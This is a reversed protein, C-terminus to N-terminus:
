FLTAPEDTFLSRYKPLNFPKFTLSLFVCLDGIGSVFYTRTSPPCLPEFIKKNKYPRTQLGGQRNEDFAGKARTGFLTLSFDGSAAFGPRRLKRHGQRHSDTPITTYHGSLCCNIKKDAKMSHIDSMYIM